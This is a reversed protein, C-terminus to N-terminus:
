EGDLNILKLKYRGQSHTYAHVNQHGDIKEIGFARLHHIHVSDGLSKITANFSIHDGIHLNDIVGSFKELNFENFTIGIDAGESEPM